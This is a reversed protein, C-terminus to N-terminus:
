STRSCSEQSVLFGPHTSFAFRGRVGGILAHGRERLSWLTVALVTSTFERRKVRAKRCPVKIGTPFRSLSVINDAVLYLLAGDSLTQPIAQESM